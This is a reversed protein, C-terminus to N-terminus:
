GVVTVVTGIRLYPWAKAAAAYPAEICGLSQPSGYTARPMYHIADGGNFYAVWAVPDAYTTGWPNTGRMVQSALREYVLFSGNATPSAAIGTNVPTSVVPRGGDYVTLHQPLTQSALAYSYGGPQQHAAPALADRGLAAWTPADLTGTEALGSDRQFSVLAGTTLITDAGPTFLARLAPPAQWQWGFRGPAVTYVERALSAGSPQGPVAPNFGVPLYDLEALIQQARLLSGPATTFVSAFPRPLVAGHLARPGPGGAPVELRFTTSPPLAVAPQFVLRNWSRTWAGAVSPVLRPTPSTPALRQSFTVVLPGAGGVGTSAGAPSVAIVEFPVNRRPGGTAGAEPGSAVLAGVLGLALAGPLVSAARLASPRM